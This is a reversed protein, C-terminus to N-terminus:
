VLGSLRTQPHHGSFGHLDREAPCKLRSCFVPFGIAKGPIHSVGPAVTENCFDLKEIM